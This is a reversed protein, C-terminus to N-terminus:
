WRRILEVFNREADNLVRGAISVLYVTWTFDGDEIPIIKVDSMIKPAKGVYFGIGVDAACLKQLLEVDSSRFVTMPEFGLEVCSKVFHGGSVNTEGIALFRENKLQKLSLSECESLPNKRSVMFYTKESHSFHLDYDSNPPQVIFALDAEGNLVKGECEYDQCEQINLDVMPNTHLFEAILDVPFSNSMGSPICIRLPIRDNKMSSAVKEKYGTLQGTLQKATNLFERGYDSLSLSQKNRYFLPVGLEDELRSIIRSVGQQTMYLKQATKTFNLTESAVIFCEIDRFDM